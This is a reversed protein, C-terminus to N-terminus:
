MCFDLFGQPNKWHQQLNENKCALIHEDCVQTNNLRCCCVVFPSLSQIQNGACIKFMKVQKREGSGVENTATNNEEHAGIM